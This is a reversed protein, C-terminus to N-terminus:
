AAALSAELLRTADAFLDYDPDLSRGIGDLFMLQKLFGVVAHPLVLHHRRSIRLMEGLAAAVDIENISKSMLDAMFFQVDTAVAALDVSAVDVLQLMALAAADFRLEALAGMLETVVRRADADLRGVVGFDLLVLRGDERVLMNGAHLDGHFVGTGLATVLLSGVLSELVCRRDVGMADLTKPEDVGAGLVREMVLVHDTSLEPWVRPVVVSPCGRLARRMTTMNAIETQFSLQQGISEAFDEVLGTPNVSQLSPRIRVLLRAGARLLHLDKRLVRELGPRQVKVVVETGDALRAAHVQSMSGAALSQREIHVLAAARAGLEREIVAKVAAWSVPPVEDRCSSLEDIWGASVTGPSSSILQGLKVFTPGLREFARCTRRAALTDIGENRAALRDWALGALVRCATVVLVLLRWLPFHPSGETLSHHTGGMPVISPDEHEVSRLTRIISGGMPESATHQLGRTQFM